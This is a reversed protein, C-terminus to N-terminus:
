EVDGAGGAPMPDPVAKRHVAHEAVAARAHGLAAREQHQVVRRRVLELGGRLAAADALMRMAAELGDGDDVLALDLVAIGGAVAADDAAAVHLPHGGRAADQVLFE